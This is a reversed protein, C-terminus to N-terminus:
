AVGGVGNQPEDLIDPTRPPHLKIVGGWLWLRVGKDAFRRLRAAKEEDLGEPFLTAEDRATLM